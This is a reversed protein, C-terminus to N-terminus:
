GEEKDWDAKFDYKLLESGLAEFQDPPIYFPQMVSSPRLNQNTHRVCADGRRSLITRAVSTDPDDAFERAACRVWARWDFFTKICM